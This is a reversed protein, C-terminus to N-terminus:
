LWHGYRYVSWPSEVHRVEPLEAAPGWWGALVLYTRHHRLSATPAGLKPVLFRIKAFGLLDTQRIPIKTSFLPLVDSHFIKLPCTIPIVSKVHYEPKDLRTYRYVWYELYEHLFQTRCPIPSGVTPNSVGECPRKPADVPSIFVTARVAVVPHNTVQSCVLIGNTCSKTGTAKLEISKLTFLKGSSWM